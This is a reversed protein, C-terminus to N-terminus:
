DCFLQVLKRAVIREDFFGSMAQPQSLKHASLVRTRSGTEKPWLAGGFPFTSNRVYILVSRRDLIMKLQLSPLKLKWRGLAVESLHLLM